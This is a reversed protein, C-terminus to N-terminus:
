PTTSREATSGAVDEMTEVLLFFLHPPCSPLLPKWPQSVATARLAKLRDVEDESAVRESFATM